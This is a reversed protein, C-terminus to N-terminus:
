KRCLNNNSCILLLVNEGQKKGQKTDLDFDLVIPSEHQDM